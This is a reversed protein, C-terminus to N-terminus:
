QSIADITTEENSDGKIRIELHHPLCVISQYSYSISGIKLCEQNSCDAETITVTGNNISLQNHGYDNKIEIVQNENLSYTQILDGDVYVEVINPSPQNEKLIFQIGIVVLISIVLGFLVLIDNKKM